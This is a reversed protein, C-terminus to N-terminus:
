ASERLLPPGQALPVASAEAAQMEAEQVSPRAAMVVAKTVEPAGAEAIVAEATEPAGAEAMTAEASVSVGVASVATEVTTPAPAEMAEAGSAGPAEAVFPVIAGDSRTPAM